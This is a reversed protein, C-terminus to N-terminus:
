PHPLLYQQGGGQGNLEMEEILISPVSWSVPRGSTAGIMYRGTSDDMRGMFEQQPGALVIDKLVRKDVGVFRANRIPEERGDAYRRVVVSPSTLGSLQEDGSFAIEFDYTLAFPEIHKVVLIYDSGTQKALQLGKRTLKRESVHKDPTVQVISPLALYRDRGEIRAHGTSETFGERPIRSMLLDRVVGNQVVHVSQPAVGQADFPYYGPLNPHAPGDDIVDWGQPLVRRGIRSSPVSPPINGDRDPIPAAPPTGSMQAQLLQRFLETAANGELIVPGLYDQEIPAERLNLVWEAMMQLEQQMESISPLEDPSTVIWSRTDRVMAGDTAKAIAEARIIYLSHTHSTHLGESNVVDEVVSREYVLVENDDLETYQKLSTSLALSTEQSWNDIINSHDVSNMTPIDQLSLMEPRDPYERTEWAAVKQAYTDVADKYARDMSLWIPRRLAIPDDDLPFWAMTTGRSSFSDINSNDFSLDGVRVDLRLRRYRNADHFLIEGSTSNTKSYRVDIINGEMWYPTPQNDLTLEAMGRTMETQLAEIAVSMSPNESAIALSILSLIM